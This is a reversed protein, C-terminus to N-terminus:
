PEQPQQPGARLHLAEAAARYSEFDVLITAVLIRRNRRRVQHLLPDISEPEREMRVRRSM